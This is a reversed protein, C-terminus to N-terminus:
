APIPDLRNHEVDAAHQLESRIEAHGPHPLRPEAQSRALQIFAHVVGPPAAADARDAFLHM